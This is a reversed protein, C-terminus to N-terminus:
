GETNLALIAKAISPNGGFALSEMAAKGRMIKAGAQFFRWAEEVDFSQYQGSPTRPLPVQGSPTNYSVVIKWYAAEFEERIGVSDM